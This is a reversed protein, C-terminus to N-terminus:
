RLGEPKPKPKTEKAAYWKSKADSSLAVWESYEMSDEPMLWARLMASGAIELRDAYMKWATAASMYRDCESHLENIRRLAEEHALMNALSNAAAKTRAAELEEVRARLQDIQNRCCQHAESFSGDDWEVSRCAFENRIRGPGNRLFGAGCKPCVMKGADPIQTNM